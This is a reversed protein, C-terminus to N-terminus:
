RFASTVRIRRRPAAPRVPRVPLLRSQRPHRRVARRGPPCRTDGLSVLLERLIRNFDRRDHPGIGSLLRRRNRVHGAVTDDVLDRGADTLATHLGPRDGPVVERAVFGRSPLHDVRNTPPASGIVVTM